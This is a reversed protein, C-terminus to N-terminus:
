PALNKLTESCPDFSTGTVEELLPVDWKVPMRFGPDVYGRVSFNTSFFVKLDFDKEEAIRRLLSSQYQIPPAVCFVRSSAPRESFAAPCVPVSGIMTAM